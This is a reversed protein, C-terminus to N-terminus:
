CRGSPLSSGNTLYCGDRTATEQGGPRAVITTQWWWGAGDREVVKALLVQGHSFPVGVFRRSTATGRVVRLSESRSCGKTCRLTVKAGAPIRGIALRKWEIRAHPLRVIRESWAPAPHTPGKAKPTTTTPPPPPPAAETTTPAPAPAAAAATQVPLYGDDPVGDTPVPTQGGTADVYSVANVWLGPRVPEKLASQLDDLAITTTFTGGSWSGTVYHYRQWESGSWTSMTAPQGDDFISINATTGTLPNRVFFQLSQDGTIQGSSLTASLTLTQDANVVVDLGSLDPGPGSDGLKDSASGTWVPPDGAAAVVATCAGVAALAAVVALRRNLRM